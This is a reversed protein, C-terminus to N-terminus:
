YRVELNILVKLNNSIQVLLKQMSFFKEVLISWSLDIFSLFSNASKLNNSIQVLLKQM